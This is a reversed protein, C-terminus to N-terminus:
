LQKMVKGVALASKQADLMLLPGITSAESYFDVVEKQVLVDGLSGTLFYSVNGLPSPGYQYGIRNAIIQLKRLIPNSDKAPITFPGELSANSPATPLGITIGTLPFILFVWAIM